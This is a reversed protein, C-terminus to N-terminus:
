YSEQIFLKLQISLYLDTTDTLRQLGNKPGYGAKHSMGKTSFPFIKLELGGAIACRVLREVIRWKESHTDGGQDGESRQQKLKRKGRM